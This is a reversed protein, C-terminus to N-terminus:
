VRRPKWFLSILFVAGMAIALIYLARGPVIQMDKFLTTFMGAFPNDSIDIQISSMMVQLQNNFLRLGVILYLACLCSILSFTTVTKRFGFIGLIIVLLYALYGIILIIASAKVINYYLQVEKEELKELYEDPINKRIDGSIAYIDRISLNQGHDDGFAGKVITFVSYSSKGFLPIQLHAIPLFISFLGFMLLAVIIFKRVGNMAKAVNSFSRGCWKCIVAEVKVEEACYPCKKM